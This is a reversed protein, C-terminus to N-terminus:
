DWTNNVLKMELKSFNSLTKELSQFVLIYILLWTITLLISRIWGSKNGTTLSIYIRKM